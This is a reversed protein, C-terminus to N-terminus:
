RIITINKNIMRHRIFRLLVPKIMKRTLPLLLIFGTIDTLFGPTLLLCAGALICIGDLVAEGPLQGTRMQLQANQLTELGQKKALYAGAIGTAIILLITPIYGITRGSLVLTGIEFAPVIILILLLYRM